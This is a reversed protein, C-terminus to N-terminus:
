VNTFPKQILSKPNLWIGLYAIQSYLAKIKKKDPVEKNSEEDLETKLKNIKKLLDM